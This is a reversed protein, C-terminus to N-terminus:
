VLKDKPKSNDYTFGPRRAKTPEKPSTVEVKVAVIATASVGPDPEGPDKSHSTKGAQTIFQNVYRAFQSYSMELRAHLEEYVVILSYGAELAKHVRELHAFFRVRGLRRARDPIRHPILNREHDNMRGYM